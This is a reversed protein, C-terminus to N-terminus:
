DLLFPVASGYMQLLKASNIVRNEGHVDSLKKTEYKHYPNKAM